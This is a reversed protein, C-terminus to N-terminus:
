KQGTTARQLPRKDAALLIKKTPTLIQIYSNYQSLFIATTKEEVTWLM